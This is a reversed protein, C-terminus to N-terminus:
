KFFAYCSVPRTPRRPLHLPASVPCRLRPNLVATRLPLPANRLGSFGYPLKHHLSRFHPHQRLYRYLCYSGAEGSSWPNRDLTLRPLTLRHRLLPRFACGFPFPHINGYRRRLCPPSPSPFATGAFRFLRHPAATLLPSQFVRESSM